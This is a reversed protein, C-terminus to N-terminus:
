IVLLGSILKTALRWLAVAVRKRVTIAQGFVTDEKKLFPHLEQCLFDFTRRRMRFNMQWHSDEFRQEVIVNWRNESRPKRWIARLILRPQTFEMLVNMLIERTQRSRARLYHTIRNQTAIHHREQRRRRRLSIIKLIQHVAFVILKFLFVQRFFLM